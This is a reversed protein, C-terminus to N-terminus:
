VAKAILTTISFLDDAVRCKIFGGIAGLGDISLAEAPNSAPASAPKLLILVPRIFRKYVALCQQGCGRSWISDANGLHEGASSDRSM